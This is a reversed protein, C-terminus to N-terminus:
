LRVPLGAGAMVRKIDGVTFDADHFISAALVASAGAEVASIFDAPNAAGGSAIVPVRVAATLARLLPLDYGSRTGDRDFSTLLIEGAAPRRPRPPGYRAADNETSAAGFANRGDVWRQWERRADIAVVVCQRGFREAMEAVLAPNKSRRPTSASRTLAPTSCHPPM